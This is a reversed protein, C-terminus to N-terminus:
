SHHWAHAMPGQKSHKETKTIYKRKKHCFLAFCVHPSIKKLILQKIISM